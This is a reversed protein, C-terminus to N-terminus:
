GRIICFRKNNEILKKAKKEAGPMLVLVNALDGESIANMGKYNKIEELLFPDDAEIATITRIRIRTSQNEWESFAAKVNDPVPVASYSECYEEIEKILIGINLANVVAKFDLKYISVEKDNVAKEAFRDFFLEHRMRSISNPIIIDFNPQVILGEDGDVSTGPQKGQYSDTLGFLYAGLNTLRFYATEYGSYEVDYDSHCTEEALVDVAGLTALYEMLVNSIACFEFDDWPAENYYQNYYDDRILAGGTVAFLDRNSKYVEKSFQNFDIWENVPCEKLYSIIERRPESLNYVSRSIKLKASSIRMCENIISNGHNIYAEYLFQAKDILSLGAFHSANKSLVFREKIIDVVDGCRLLQVLAYSVIAEGANRIDEITGAGNNCIEDYGAIKWFKLLATKNMYGGAKTAPVRNNNIFSLLMDFDKIREERDIIAAYEDINDVNCPRFVRVHPPIVEELYAKFVPPIHGRVFFANLKSERSFYKERLNNSYFSYYYNKNEYKYKKAIEELESQIPNYKSQVICTLLAKEYESLQKYLIEASDKDSYFRYMMEVATAKNVTRPKVDAIRMLEQLTDRNGQYTMSALDNLLADM